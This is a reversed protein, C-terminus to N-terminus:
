VAEAAEAAAAVEAAEAAAAVEAAAAGAVGPWSYAARLRQQTKRTSSISRPWVSTPSNKKV